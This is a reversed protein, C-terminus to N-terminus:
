AMAVSVAKDNGNTDSWIQKQLDHFRTIFLYEAAAPSVPEIREDLPPYEAADTEWNSVAAIRLDRKETTLMRNDIAKIDPTGLNFINFRLCIATEIRKEIRRYLWGFLGTGRKLPRPLDICYAEPSDHMLFRLARKPEPFYFSGRWCHEAVSYHRVIHGGFRCQLSLSHAIDEIRVDEPRPDLPYFEVGTYTRFYNGKRRQNSVM